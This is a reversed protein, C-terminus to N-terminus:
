ACSGSEQLRVDQLIAGDIDVDAVVADGDVRIGTLVVGAPLYQAVCVKWDRLVSSALPGFQALLAEASLEAEAVRLTSPTLVLEGDEVRPTLGVGVSVSLVWLELETTMAIDPDDLAVTEVPFGDIAGLLVRLQQEDLRVTARASEVPADGRIPIGTAHVVIDGSLEGSAVNQSSLTLEGIRGGILQPLVPGPLDVDIPHDAPLSLQSVIQQRITTTVISRALFEGAIWAGVALLAILAVGVIWPTARRRQRPQPGSSALVWQADPRPLPQTPQTDGTM